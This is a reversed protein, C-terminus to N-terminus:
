STKRGPLYKCVSSQGSRDLSRPMRSQSAKATLNRAGAYMRQLGFATGVHSLCPRALIMHSIMWVGIEEGQACDRHDQRSRKSGLATSNLNNAKSITDRAHSRPEKGFLFLMAVRPRAPGGSNLRARGSLCVHLTSVAGCLMWICCAEVLHWKMDM